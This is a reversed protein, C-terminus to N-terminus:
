VKNIGTKKNHFLSSIYNRVKENEGTKFWTIDKMKRFWTMQRKAYNRTNKKILEITAELTIKQDIYDFMEKYGVTSLANLKRYENVNSVEAELGGSIMQDV